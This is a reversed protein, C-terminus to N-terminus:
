FISFHLKLSEFCCLLKEYRYQETHKPLRHYILSIIQEGNVFYFNGATALLEKCDAPCYMILLLCMNIPSVYM